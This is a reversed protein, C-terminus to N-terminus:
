KSGRKKPTPLGILKNLDAPIVALGKSLVQTEPPLLETVEPWQEVLKEITSVSNVAAYVNGRVAEEVDEFKAKDSELDLFWQHLSHGGEITFEAPAYRYADRGTYEHHQFGSVDIAGIFYLRLNMGGLNLTMDYDRRLLSDKTHLGPALKEKAAAEFAKVKEIEALGKKGGVALLWVEDIWKKLGTAYAEKLKPVESKQIANKVIKSRLETNLRTSM